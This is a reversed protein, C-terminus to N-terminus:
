LMAIESQRCKSCIYGQASVSWFARAEKNIRSQQIILQPDKPEWFQFASHIASTEHRTEAVEM